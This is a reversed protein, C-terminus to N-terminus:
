FADRPLLLEIGFWGPATSKVAGSSRPAGYVANLPESTLKIRRESLLRRYAKWATEAAPSEESTAPLAQQGALASPMWPHRSRPFAIEPKVLVQFVPIALLFAGIVPRQTFTPLRFKLM